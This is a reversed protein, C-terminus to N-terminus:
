QKVFKKNIVENALQIQLFYTGASMHLMNTKITNTGTSLGKNQQVLVKGSINLVRIVADQNQPVDINLELTGNNVPNAKILVSSFGGVRVSKIDSITFSGDKDVRKIRYYRIGAPLNDQTVTYTNVSTGNKAAVTPGSMFSIGNSSYEVTYHDVNIENSTKWTLTASNRQLTATFGQWIAPLLASAQTIITFVSTNFLAVGTFVLHNGTLSSARVFRQTGTNFYDGDGDEDIMLRYNNPDTGGTLTLGSIDFDLNGSVVSGTNQSRWNRVLRESGQAVVPAEGAAILHETLAGADNGIMLFQKDSLPTISSLVLNLKANQGTGDGSGSNMSNSQPQALGTGADMGIGFVDNQYTASSTWYVTGDSATYNFPGATTGLTFGYKLALYSEVKNRDADSLGTNFLIIEGISGAWAQTASPDLAGIVGNVSTAYLGLGGLAAVPPLFNGREYQFGNGGSMTFAAMAGTPNFGSLWYNPYSIDYGYFSNGLGGYNSGVQFTGGCPTCGPTGYVFIWQYGVASGGKAVVFVTRDELNQPFNSPSPQTMFSNIGDFALAANFNFTNATLAPQNATTAQSFNNASTSYDTWGSPSAGANGKLWLVSGAVGGPSQAFVATTISLLFPLYVTKKM